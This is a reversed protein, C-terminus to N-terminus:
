PDPLAALQLRSKKEQKKVDEYSQNIVSQVLSYHAHKKNAYKTPIIRLISRREHNQNTSVERENWEVRVKSSISEKDKESHHPSLTYPLTVSLSYTEHLPSTLSSGSFGAQSSLWSFTYAAFHDLLQNNSTFDDARETLPISRWKGSWKWKFSSKENFHLCTRSSAESFKM